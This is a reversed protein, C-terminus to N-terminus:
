NEFHGETEFPDIDLVANDADFAERIMWVYPMARMVDWASRFQEELNIDSQQRM